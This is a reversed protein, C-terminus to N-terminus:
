HDLDIEGGKHTSVDIKDLDKNTIKDKVGVWNRMEKGGSTSSDNTSNAHVLNPNKQASKNGSPAKFRNKLAERAASVAANKEEEDKDFSTWGGAM